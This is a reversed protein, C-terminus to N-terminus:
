PRPCHHVQSRGAPSKPRRALWARRGLHPSSNEASRDNCDPRVRKRRHMVPLWYVVEPAPTLPQQCPFFSPRWSLPQRLTFWRTIPCAGPLPCTSLVPPKVSRCFRVSCSQRPDSVPLMPWSCMGAEGAEISSPGAERLARCRGCPLREPGFWSGCPAGAACIAVSYSRRSRHGPSCLPQHYELRNEAALVVLAL